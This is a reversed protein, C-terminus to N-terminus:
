DGENSHMEKILNKNIVAFYYFNQRIENNINRLTIYKLKINQIKKHIISLEEYLM